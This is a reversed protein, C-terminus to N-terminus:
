SFPQNRLMKTNNFRFAYLSFGLALDQFIRFWIRLVSLDLDLRSVLLILGRFGSFAYLLFRLALDQFFWGIWIRFFGVLGFGSFGDDQFGSVSHFVGFGSRSFDSVLGFGFFVL